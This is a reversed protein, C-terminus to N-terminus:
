AEGAYLANAVAALNMPGDIIEQNDVAVRVRRERWVALAELAAIAFRLEGSVRANVKGSRGRARRNRRRYGNDFREFL